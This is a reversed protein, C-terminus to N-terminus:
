LYENRIAVRIYFVFVLELYLYNRYLPYIVRNGRCGRFHLTLVARPTRFLNRHVHFRIKSFAYIMVSRRRLKNPEAATKTHKSLLYFLAAPLKPLVYFNKQGIGYFGIGYLAFFCGGDSLTDRSSDTSLM